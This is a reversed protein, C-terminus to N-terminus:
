VENGDTEIFRIRNFMCVYEKLNGAGTHTGGSPGSALMILIVKKASVLPM